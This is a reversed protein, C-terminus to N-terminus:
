KLHLLCLVNILWTIVIVTIATNTSFEDDTTMGTMAICIPHCVHMCHKHVCACMFASM